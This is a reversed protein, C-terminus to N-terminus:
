TSPASVPYSLMPDASDLGHNFERFTKKPACSGGGVLDFTIISVAVPPFPFLVSARCLGRSLGAPMILKVSAIKVQSFAEAVIRVPEGHFPRADFRLLTHQGEPASLLGKLAPTVSAAARLREERELPHSKTWGFVLKGTSRIRISEEAQSVLEIYAVRMEQLEGQERERQVIRRGLLERGQALPEWVLAYLGIVLMAGGALGLLMRERPSLRQYFSFLKRWDFKM